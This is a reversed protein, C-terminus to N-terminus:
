KSMKVDQRRSMKDEQIREHRWSHFPVFYREHWVLQQQVEKRREVDLRALSQVVSRHPYHGFQKCFEKTWGVWGKFVWNQSCWFRNHIDKSLYKALYKVGEQANQVAEIDVIPSAHIDQWTNSVWEQPMYEGRFVLHLHERDGKAEKVGIYEFIGFKRRLRKVLIRFSRHIDKGLALAENSTTLTLVRLQGGVGVGTYFRQYFRRVSKTQPDGYGAGYLPRINFLKCAVEDVSLGNSSDILTLNRPITKPVWNTDTPTLLLESSLKSLLESQATRAKYNPSHTISLPDSYGSPRINLLKTAAEKTSLGSLSDILTLNRPITKPVWNDTPVSISGSSCTGGILSDQTATARKCCRGSIAWQDLSTSGAGGLALGDKTVKESSLSFAAGKELAARDEACLRRTQTTKGNGASASTFASFSHDDTFHDAYPFSSLERHHV